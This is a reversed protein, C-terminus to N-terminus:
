TLLLKLRSKLRVEASFPSEDAGLCLDGALLAAGRRGYEAAIEAKLWAEAQERRRGALRGASALQAYHTEALVALAEIGEDRAASVSISHVEWDPDSRVALSIASKMEALARVALPGHDAKTVAAIHPIEMIGAKMFQMADGSGPQVCLVITDAVLTIEAESQGTGVSEVVVRDFVARMLIMSAYAIEALGGLRGRAALSRVFVGADDPDTRMRIRDGLLAGGSLRSSPDIALVGATLGRRRWSNILSNILTSKGAGPPGTIGLVQARPSLYAEDLLRSITEGRQATDALALAAAMARKGGMRLDALGRTGTM